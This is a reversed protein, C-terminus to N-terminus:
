NLTKYNTATTIMHKSFAGGDTTRWGNDTTRQGGDTTRRKDTRKKDVGQELHHQYNKEHHAASICKFPVAHTIENEDSEDEDSLQDTTVVKQGIVKMVMDM